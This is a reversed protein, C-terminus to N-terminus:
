KVNIERVLNVFVISLVSLLNVIVVKVGMKSLMYMIVYVIYKVGVSLWGVYVRVYFMNILLIM